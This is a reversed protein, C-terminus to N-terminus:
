VKRASADAQAATHRRMDKQKAPRPIHHHITVAHRHAVVVGTVEELRRACVVARDIVVANLAKVVVARPHAGGNALHVSSSLLQSHILSGLLLCNDEKVEQM